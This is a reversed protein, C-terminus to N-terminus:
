GANFPTTSSFWSVIWDVLGTDQGLNSCFMDAICAWVIVAVCLWNRVTKKHTSMEYIFVDLFYFALLIPFSLFFSLFLWMENRSIFPAHLSIFLLFPRIFTAKCPSCRAQVPCSGQNKGISVPGRCFAGFIPGAISYSVLRAFAQVLLCVITLNGYVLTRMLSETAEVSIVRVRPGNGIV